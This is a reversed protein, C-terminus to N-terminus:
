RKNTKIADATFRLHSVTYLLTLAVRTAKQFNYRQANQRHDLLATRRIRGGVLCRPVPWKVTFEECDARGCVTAQYTNAATKKM